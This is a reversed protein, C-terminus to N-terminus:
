RLFPAMASRAQKYSVFTWSSREIMHDIVTRVYGDLEKLLENRPEAPLINEWRAGMHVIRTRYGTYEGTASDRKGSLEHYRANFKEYEVANKAVYRGIIKGVEDAKTYDTPDALFELVAM